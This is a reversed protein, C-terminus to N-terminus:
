NDVDVINVSGMNRRFQYFVDYVDLWLFFDKKSLGINVCFLFFKM